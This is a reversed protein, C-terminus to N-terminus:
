APRFRVTRAMFSQQPRRAMAKDSDHAIAQPM